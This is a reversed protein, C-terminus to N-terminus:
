QGKRVTLEPVFGLHSKLYARTQDESKRYFSEDDSIRGQKLMLDLDVIEYAIEAGGSKIKKLCTGLVLLALPVFATKNVYISVPPNIMLIKKMEETKM